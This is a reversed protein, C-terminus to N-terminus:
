APLPHQLDTRQIRLQAIVFRLLREKSPCCNLEAIIARWLRDSHGSLASAACHLPM